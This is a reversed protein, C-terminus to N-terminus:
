FLHRSKNEKKQNRWLYPEIPDKMSWINNKKSRAQEELQQYNNDKTFRYMWALGNSLLSENVNIDGVYVIGLTRKYQDYGMVKVTVYKGACLEKTHNTAKTGYDQKKEPCDIGWLRIKHQTNDKDLLTVSDGDTIKIVKYGEDQLYQLMKYLGKKTLTLESCLEVQSFHFHYANEKRIHHNTYGKSEYLNEYKQILNSLVLKRDTTFRGTVGQLKKINHYIKTYYGDINVKKLEM